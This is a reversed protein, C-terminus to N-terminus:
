SRADHSARGADSSLECRGLTIEADPWIVEIFEDKTVGRAGRDLLFAFMAQAQRSGAKKGGWHSVPQGSREVLFHGFATVRLSEFRGSSRVPVCPM